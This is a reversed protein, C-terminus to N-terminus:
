STINIKEVSMNVMMNVKGCTELVRVGQRGVVNM